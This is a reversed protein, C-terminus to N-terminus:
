LFLFKCFGDKRYREVIEMIQNTVQKGSISITGPMYFGGGCNPVSDAGYTITPTLLSTYEINIKNSFAQALLSDTGLPLHHGHNEICGCPIIIFTEKKNLNLYKHLSITLINLNNKLNEM